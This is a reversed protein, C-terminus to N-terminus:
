LLAIKRKSPSLNVDFKQQVIERVKGESSDDEQLDKLYLIREQLIGILCTYFHLVQGERGHGSYWHLCSADKYKIWSRQENLLAQKSELMEKNSPDSTFGTFTTKWTAGLLRELRAVEKEGCDQFDLNTKAQEMCTDYPGIRTNQSADSQAPAGKTFLALSLLLTMLRKM